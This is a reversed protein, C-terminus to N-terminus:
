QAGGASARLLKEIDLGLRNIREVMAPWEEKLFRERESALEADEGALPKAGDLEEIQFRLFDERQARSREDGVKEALSGAIERM